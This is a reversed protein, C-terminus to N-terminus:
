VHEPLSDEDVMSYKEMVNDFIIEQSRVLQEIFEEILQEPDRNEIFISEKTLSYNITVSIQIHSSNIMLDSTVSM